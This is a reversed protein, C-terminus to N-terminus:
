CCKERAARVVFVLLRMLADFRAQVAVRDTHVERLADAALMEIGFAADAILEFGFMAGSGRIRHSLIEIRKYTTEEGSAVEAILVRLEDLESTTRQLYRQALEVMRLKLDNPNTM